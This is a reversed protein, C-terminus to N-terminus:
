GPGLHGRKTLTFRLAIGAPGPTLIAQGVPLAALATRLENTSLMRSGSDDGRHLLRLPGSSVLDYGIVRGGPRTVRVAEAVAEEWRITHHLMIWSLVVDFSDDKFPLATADAQRTTARSGFSRLRREAAKVMADDFDTVTLEVGPHSALVEAAMAGSGGGIELVRGALAEGQLAWPLVVRRTFTRWPASRCVAAEARSMVPV